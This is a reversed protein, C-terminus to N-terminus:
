LVDLDRHKSQIVDDRGDRQNDIQAEIKQLQDKLVSNRKQTNDYGEQFRQHLVRIKHEFREFKTQKESDLNKQLNSLRESLKSIRETNAPGSASLSSTNM